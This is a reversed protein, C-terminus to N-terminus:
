IINFKEPAKATSFFIEGFHIHTYIPEEEGGPVIIKLV